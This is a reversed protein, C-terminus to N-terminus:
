RNKEKMNEENNLPLNSKFLKSKEQEEKDM